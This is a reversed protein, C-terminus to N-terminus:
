RMSKVKVEGLVFGAFVCCPGWRERTRNRVGGAVKTLM